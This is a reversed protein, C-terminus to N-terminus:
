AGRFDPKRKELFATMGERMDSSAALLGFLASEHRLAEDLGVEQAHYVAELARALALPGKSAMAEALERAKAMLQDPEVVHTALGIRAAEDASVQAGTLTLEVARGMGVVRALRVTGGFGPLIGLGVEPLGFRANTAAIRIHCALALECGGGLAFGNVAAIVPRSFREIRRFVAQGHRSVEEASLPSMEALAAIDAGAVFAKEGAGTVIAVAVDDRAEIAVFSADLAELVERNLANLKEPRDITVTAIRDTIDTRVLDAM